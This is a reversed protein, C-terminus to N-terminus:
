TLALAFPRSRNQARRLAPPLSAAPAFSVGDQRLDSRFISTVVKGSPPKAPVFHGM